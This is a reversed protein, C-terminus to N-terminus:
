FWDPMAELKGDVLRVTKGSLDMPAQAALLFLPELTEPGPLRGRAEEPADETAIASGPSVCILCVNAPREEVAVYRTFVRIAEKTTTYAVSREGGGGHLSIVHGGGRQEIYPLAHKTCRFTGGLNVGQVKEWFANEMDRIRPWRPVGWNFHPVIGADNVLIDIGGLQEAARAMCQRVSEENTVDTVIPLAASGIEGATAKMRPEDVDALVVRAGERAYARAVMRGIGKASGTIVAVKGDLAGM